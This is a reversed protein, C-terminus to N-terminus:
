GASRSCCRAMNKWSRLSAMRRNGYAELAQVVSRPLENDATAEYVARRITLTTRATSIRLRFKAAKAAILPRRDPPLPPVM